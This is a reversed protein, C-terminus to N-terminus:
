FSLRGTGARPHQRAFGRAHRIGNVRCHGRDDPVPLPSVGIGEAASLAIPAVLVTTATNSIFQSFISTLIFRGAMLATPGMPGLGEVLANVILDIGGTQELTTAMPFMGAILVLSQWNIAAYVGKMRMCKTFVMALAALVVATVAPIVNFTMLM